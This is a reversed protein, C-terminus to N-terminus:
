TGYAIWDATETTTQSGATNFQRINFGTTTIANAATFVNASGASSTSVIVRPAASFTVNFSVAKDPTSNVAVSGSDIKYKGGGVIQAITTDVAASTLTGGGASNQHNHTANVFSSITPTTLTKNTLTDTSTRSVLTDPGGPFSLNTTGTGGNAVPMVGTVDTSLNVQGWSSTGAGTGRLVTGTSAASSGTGVKTQVAVIEAQELNHQSAHVDILLTHGAVFGIFSALSSPFSAM